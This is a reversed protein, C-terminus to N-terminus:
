RGLATRLTSGLSQYVVLAMEHDARVQAAQMMQAEVSVSNGNPSLPASPDGVLRPAIRLAAPAPDLGAQQMRQWTEAFTEVRTARYGPTDAQAVNRAIAAQARAAHAARAHAMDLITLREFM